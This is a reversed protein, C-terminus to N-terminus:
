DLVKQSEAAIGGSDVPFGFGHINQQGATFDYRKGFRTPQGVDPTRERDFKLFLSMRDAYEHRCKTRDILGSVGDLGHSDLQFDWQTGLEDFPLQHMASQRTASDFNIKDILWGIEGPGAQVAVM